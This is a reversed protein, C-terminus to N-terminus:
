NILFPHNLAEYPSIRNHPNLNLMQKILDKGEKCLNSIGMANDFLYEINEISKIQKEAIKSKDRMNVSFIGTTLIEVDSHKVSQVKCKM